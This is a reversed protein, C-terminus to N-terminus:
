FIVWYRWLLKSVLHTSCTHSGPYPLCNPWSWYSSSSCCKRMPEYISIFAPFFGFLLLFGFITSIVLVILSHCFGFINLDRAVGLSIIKRNALSLNRIFNMIMVFDRRCKGVLGSELLLYFIFCRLILLLLNWNLPNLTIVDLFSLILLLCYLCDLLNNIYVVMLFKFRDNIFSIFRWYSGYIWFYIFGNVVLKVVNVLVVTIWGERGGWVIYKM